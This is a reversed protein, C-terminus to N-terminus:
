TVLNAEEDFSTVLESRRQWIPEAAKSNAKSPEALRHRTRVGEAPYSKRKVARLEGSTLETWFSGLGPYNPLCAADLGM